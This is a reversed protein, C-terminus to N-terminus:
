PSVLLWSGRSCSLCSLSTPQPIREYCQTTRCLFKSPLAPSCSLSSIPSIFVLAREWSVGLLLLSQFLSTPLFLESAASTTKSNASYKRKCTVGPVINLVMRAGLLLTEWLTPNIGRKGWQCIGQHWCGRHSCLCPLNWPALVIQLVSSVQEECTLLLTTSCLM